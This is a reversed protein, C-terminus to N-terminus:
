LKCVYIWLSLMLVMDYDCTGFIDEMYYDHSYKCCWFISFINRKFLFDTLKWEFFWWKPGSYPGYISVNAGKKCTVTVPPCTRETQVAASPTSYPGYVSSKEQPRSSYVTVKRTPEILSLKKAMTMPASEVRHVEGGGFKSLSTPTSYSNDQKDLSKNSSYSTKHKSPSASRSPLSSKKYSLLKHM